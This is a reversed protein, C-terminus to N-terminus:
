LDKRGSVRTEKTPAKNESDDIKDVSGICLPCTSREEILTPERVEEPNSDKFFGILYRKIRELLRM